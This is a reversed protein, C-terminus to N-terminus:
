VLAGPPRLKRNGSRLGVQEFISGRLGRAPYLISGRKDRIKGSVPRALVIQAYLQLLCVYSM